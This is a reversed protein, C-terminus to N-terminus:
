ELLTINLESAVANMKKDLSYLPYSLSKASQLFYADYAYINYELAIKLAAKIDVSVLRFPIKHFIHFAAFIEEKSIQKRKALASFANGIEYPLIDPSVVDVDITADIIKQKEPEELVIAMFISTDIIVKM